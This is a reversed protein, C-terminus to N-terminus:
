LVNFTCSHLFTHFNELIEVTETECILERAPMQDLNGTVRIKDPCKYWIRDGM